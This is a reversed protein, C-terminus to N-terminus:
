QLIGLSGGWGNSTFSFPGHLYLPFFLFHLPLPLLPHVIGRRLICWFSSLWLFILSTVSGFLCSLVTVDKKRTWSSILVTNALNFTSSPPSCISLTGFCCHHESLFFVIALCSFSYGLGVHDACINAGAGAYVLLSLVTGALLVMYAATVCHLNAAGLACISPSSAITTFTAM